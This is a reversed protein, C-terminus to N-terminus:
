SAGRPAKPWAAEYAALIRDMRASLKEDVVQRAPDADHWEVIEKAGQSFPITAAFGPVARKIKTNDFVMSHAKDGLLSAGWEADYAAILDSPVHVLRPTAGAAHGLIEFIQNWTLLEDSTIHYAEGIAHINGLLGLFGKAFDRHHTLVWLSTGDGHVIVQKGKRMRDVVTYHGEFPLLTRDYTHSPRVITAPFQSARYEQELLNECAIKNRSYDWYPNDLPTSETVPLSTPPTQYASASSIFVYQATLGRFLDIDRQVQDPTFAIWDVVADFRHSKLADRVSGANGIDERIVHAGAPVPRQSQGRNLLYLEIGREVALQSCASSIIGTGGIFLIKM